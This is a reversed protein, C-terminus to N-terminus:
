FKMWLGTSFWKRRLSLGLLFVARPDQCVRSFSRRVSQDTLLIQVSPDPSCRPSILFFDLISVTPSHFSLYFYLTKVVTTSSQRLIPPQGGFDILPLGSNGRGCEANATMPQSKGPDSMRQYFASQKKKSGLNLLLSSDRRRVLKALVTLTPLHM